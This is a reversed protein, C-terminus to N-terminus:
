DLSPSLGLVSYNLHSIILSLTSPISLAQCVTLAWQIFLLAPLRHYHLSDVFLDTSPPPAYVLSYYKQWLQSPPTFLSTILM